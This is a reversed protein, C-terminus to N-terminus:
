WTIDQPNINNEVLIEGLDKVMQRLLDTEPLHDILRTCRSREDIDIHRFPGEDKLENEYRLRLMEAISLTTKKDENPDFIDSM